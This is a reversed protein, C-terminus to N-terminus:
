SLMGGSTMEGNGIWRAVARLFDAYAWHNFASPDLELARGISREAGAWNWEYYLQVFGLVAHAQAQAEDLELAALAETKAKPFFEDEANDEVASHM